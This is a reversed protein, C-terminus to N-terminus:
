EKDEYEILRVNLEPAHLMMEDYSRGGISKYVKGKHPGEAVYETLWLNHIDAYRQQVRLVLGLQEMSAEASPLPTEVGNLDLYTPYGEVVSMRLMGDHVRQKGAEPSLEPYVQAAIDECHGWWRSNQSRPGTTRPRRPMTLRWSVYANIKAVTEAYLRDLAASDKPKELTFTSAGIRYADAGTTIFRTCSEVTM